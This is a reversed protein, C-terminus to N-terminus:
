PLRAKIQPELARWTITGALRIGNLIFTPSGALSYTEIDKASQEALRTAMAGDALCRDVDTRRYGRREMIQYFGMDNAINRHRSAESGTVWRQRQGTTAAHARPLWKDQQHMFAAHNQAFKESPGCNTLMAATLDVPDRIYHRIEQSVKGSAVYGIRLAVEGERAFKGCTPCTYSVFEILTVEAEPNGVRHGGDTVVMQANWNANKREAAAASTATAMACAIVGFIALKRFMM